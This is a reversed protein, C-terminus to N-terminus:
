LRSVPLLEPKTVGPEQPYRGQPAAPQRHTERRTGRRLVGWMWLTVTVPGTPGTVTLVRRPKEDFMQRRRQHGIGPRFLFPPSPQSPSSAPLVTRSPEKPSPEVKSSSSRLWTTPHLCLASRASSPCSSLRLTRRLHFGDKKKLPQRVMRCPSIGIRRVRSGPKPSPQQPPLPHLPRCAGQMADNM